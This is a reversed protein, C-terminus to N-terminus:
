FLKSKSLIVIWKNGLNRDRTEHIRRLMCPTKLEHYYFHFFFHPKRRGRVFYHTMFLEGCLKKFKWCSFHSQKQTAMRVWRRQPKRRQCLKQNEYSFFSCTRLRSSVQFGSCGTFLPINKSTSFWGQGGGCAEISSQTFFRRDNVPLAFYFTQYLWTM